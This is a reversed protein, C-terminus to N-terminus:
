GDKNRSNFQVLSKDVRLSMRTEFSSKGGWEGTLSKIMGIRLTVM